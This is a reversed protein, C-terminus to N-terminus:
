FQEQFKEFSMARENKYILRLFSEKAENGLVDDASKNAYRARLALIDVRGDQEGISNEIYTYAESNESLNKLIINHVMKADQKFNRGTIPSAGIVKEEWTTFGVVTPTANTCTVYSLSVGNVGIM